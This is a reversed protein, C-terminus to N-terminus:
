ENKQMNYVYYNSFCNYGNWYFDIINNIVMDFNFPLGIIM